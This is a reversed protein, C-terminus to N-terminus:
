AAAPGTRRPPGAGPWGAAHAHVHVGPHLQGNTCRLLAACSAAEGHVPIFLPYVTRSLRGSSRLTAHCVRCASCPLCLLCLMGDAADHQQM